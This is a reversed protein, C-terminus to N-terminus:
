GTGPQSTWDSQVFRVVANAKEMVQVFAELEIPRRTLRDTHYVIVADVLGRAVDSLMREYQPRHKGSYASVDNDVYVDAM